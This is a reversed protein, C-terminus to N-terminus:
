AYQYPSVPPPAAVHLLHNMSSKAWDYHSHIEAADNDGM